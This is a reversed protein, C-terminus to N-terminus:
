HVRKGLHTLGNNNTFIKKTEWSQGKPAQLFKELAPILGTSLEEVTWGTKQAMAQINWGLRIGESKVGDVTTDHCAVVKDIWDAFHDLERTLQGECHHTDLFLGDFRRTMPYDLDSGQVFVHNIGAANILAVAENVYVSTELDLSVLTVEEGPHAKKYDLLGMALAYMSTPVRVGAEIFSACQSALLRLYPLHENIDSPTECLLKYRREIEQQAM